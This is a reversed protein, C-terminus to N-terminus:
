PCSLNPRERSIRATLETARSGLQEHAQLGELYALAQCPQQDLMALQALNYRSPGHEPNLRLSQEFAERAESMRNLAAQSNGLGFWAMAQDPWRETTARWARGAQDPEALAEFDALARIWGDPDDTAPLEGPKLTVMAWLGARQWQRLWRRMAQELDRETGSHQRIVAPEVAYGTVVAYHWVPIRVLGLNELVLVPRGAAVEVFVARPDAPLRYAIREHSRAAALMEAQLSGQRDPLYVREILAEPSTDIGSQGLVSALAAPGCHFETQPHFPVDALHIEPPLRDLIEAPAPGRWTACAPLLLILFILLACRGASTAPM